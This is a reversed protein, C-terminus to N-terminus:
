ILHALLVTFWVSLPFLLTKQIVSSLGVRLVPIIPMKETYEWRKFYFAKYEVFLATIFGLVAFGIYDGATSTEFWALNGKLLAILLIAFLTYAVDGLAAWVPVPIRWSASGKLADYNKYLRIHATEWTFHLFFTVVTLISYALVM